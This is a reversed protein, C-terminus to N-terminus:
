SSHRDDLYRMLQKGPRSTQKIERCTDRRLRGLGMDRLASLRMSAIVRGGTWTTTTLTITREVPKYTDNGWPYNDAPVLVSETIRKTHATTHPTPAKRAARVEAWGRMCIVFLHLDSRLKM